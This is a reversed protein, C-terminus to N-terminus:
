NSDEYKDRNVIKSVENHSAKNLKVYLYKGFSNTIVEAMIFWELHTVTVPDLLENEYCDILHQITQKIDLLRRCLTDNNAGQKKAKWFKQCDSDLRKEIEKIM